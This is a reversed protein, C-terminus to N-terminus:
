VEGAQALEQAIPPHDGDVDLAPALRRLMWAGLEQDSRRDGLLNARLDVASGGIGLPDEDDEVPGPGISATSAKRASSGRKEGSGSRSRWKRVRLGRPYRRRM